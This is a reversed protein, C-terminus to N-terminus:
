FVNGGGNKEGAPARPEVEGQDRRDGPMRGRGRGRGGPGPRDGGEGQGMRRLWGPVEVEDVEGEPLWTAIEALAKATEKYEANADLKAQYKDWFNAMAEQKKKKLDALEPVADAFEVMRRRVDQMGQWLRAMEGFIARREEGEGRGREHLARRENELRTKEEELAKYGPDAQLKAFFVRQAEEAAQRAQAVEADAMASAELQRCRDRLHTRIAAIAAREKEENTRPKKDVAPAIAGREDVAVEKEGARVLAQAGSAATLLVAGAVVKVFLREGRMAEEKESLRVTFRTGMVSVTGWETHVSFTRGSGSQVDCEIEGAELEVAEAKEEGAARVVTFPALAVRAYGGLELEAGGQRAYIIAGRRMSHGDMIIFDGKAIPQPYASDTPTLHWLAMGITVMAAAALVAILRKLRRRRIGRIIAEARGPPPLAGLAESLFSELVRERWNVEKNV